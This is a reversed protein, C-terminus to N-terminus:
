ERRVELAAPSLGGRHHPVDADAAREDRRAFPAGIPLDDSEMAPKDAELPVHADLAGHPPHACLPHPKLELRHAHPLRMRDHFHRLRLAPARLKTPTADISCTSGPIRPAQLRRRPQPLGAKSPAVKARRNPSEKYHTPGRARSRRPHPGRYPDM